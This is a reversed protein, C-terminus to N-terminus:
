FSPHIGKQKFIARLYVKDSESLKSIPVDLKRDDAAILKVTDGTASHFSAEISFKGSPDQWTRIEHKQRGTQRPEPPETPTDPAVAKRQQGVDFFPESAPSRPPVSAQARERAPPRRAPVPTATAPQKAAVPATPKRIYLYWYGLGITPLIFMFITFGVNFINFLFGGGGKKKSM